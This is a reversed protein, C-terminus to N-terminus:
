RCRRPCTLPDPYVAVKVRGVHQNLVMLEASHDIEAKQSHAVWGAIEHHGPRIQRSVRTIDESARQCNIICGPRPSAAPCQLGPQPSGCVRRVIRYKAINAPVGEGLNPGIEPLGARLGNVNMDSMCRGGVSCRPSFM